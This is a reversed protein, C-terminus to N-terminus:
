TEHAQPVAANAAAAYVRAGAPSALHAAADVHGDQGSLWSSALPLRWCRVCHHSNSHCHERQELPSDTHQWGLACRVRSHLKTFSACVLCDELRRSSATFSGTHYRLTNSLRMVLQKSPDPNAAPVLPDYVITYLQPAPTDHALRELLARTRIQSETISVSPSDPSLFPPQLLRLAGPCAESLLSPDPNLLRPPGTGNNHFSASLLEMLSPSSGTTSYTSSQTLSLAGDGLQERLQELDDDFYFGSSPSSESPEFAEGESYSLEMAM